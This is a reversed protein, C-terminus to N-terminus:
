ERFSRLPFSRAFHIYDAMQIYHKLIKSVQRVFRMRLYEYVFVKFTRFLLFTTPLQLIDIKDCNQRNKFIYTLVASRHLLYYHNNPVDM